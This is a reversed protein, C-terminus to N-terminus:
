SAWGRASRSIRTGNLKVGTMATLGKGYPAQHIIRLPHYLKMGFNARQEQKWPLPVALTLRVRNGLRGQHYRADPLRSHDQSSFLPDGDKALRFCPAVALLTILIMM